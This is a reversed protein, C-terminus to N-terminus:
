KFRHVRLPSATLVPGKTKVLVKMIEQYIDNFIIDCHTNIELLWSYIEKTLKKQTAIGVKSMKNEYKTIIRVMRFVFAIM